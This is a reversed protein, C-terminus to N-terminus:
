YFTLNNIQSQNNTANTEGSIKNINNLLKNIRANLSDLRLQNDMILFRNDNLMSYGGDIQNKINSLYQTNYPTNTNPTASASAATTNPTASASAATTNPTASASAATTNPTASASATTSTATTSPAVATGPIIASNSSVLKIGTGSSSGFFSNNSIRLFGYNLYDGLFYLASSSIPKNFDGVRIQIHDDTISTNNSQQKKQILNNYAYIFKNQGDATYIIKRNPSNSGYSIGTATDQTIFFVDPPSLSSAPQSILTGNTSYNVYNNTLAGTANPINIKFQCPMVVQRYYDRIGTKPLKQMFTTNNNSDTISLTLITSVDSRAIFEVASLNIQTPFTISWNSTGNPQADNTSSVWVSKAVTNWTGFAAPLSVSSSLNIDISNDTKYGVLTTELSTINRQINNSKIFNYIGKTAKDPTYVNYVSSSALVIGTTNPNILVGTDDYFLIGFLCINNDTSTLTIKKCPISAYTTSSFNELSSRPIRAGLKYLLIAVIALIIVILIHKTDLKM